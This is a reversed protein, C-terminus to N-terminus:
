LKPKFVFNKFNRPSWGLYLTLSIPFAVFFGKIKLWGFNFREWSNANINVLIGNPSYLFAHASGPWWRHHLRPSVCCHGQNIGRSLGLKWITAANQNVRLPLCLGRITVCCFTLFIIWCWFKLFSGNGFHKYIVGYPFNNRCRSKKTRPTGFHRFIVWNEIKSTKRYKRIKQCKEIKM